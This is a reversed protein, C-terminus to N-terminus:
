KVQFVMNYVMEQLIKKANLKFSPNSCPIMRGRNTFGASMTKFCLKLYKSVGNSPDAMVYVNNWISTNLRSRLLTPFSM